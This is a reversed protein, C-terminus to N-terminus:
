AIRAGRLLPAAARSRRSVSRPSVMSLTSSTATPSTAAADGRARAPPPEQQSRTSWCSRRRATRGSPASGPSSRSTVRSRQAPRCEKMATRRCMAARGAFRDLVGTPWSRAAVRRLRARRSNRAAPPSGPTSRTSVRAAAAGPQDDAHRERSTLLVRLRSVPSSSAPRRSRASREDAPQRVRQHPTPRRGSRGCRPCPRRRDGGAVEGLADVLGLRRVSTPRRPRRASRM